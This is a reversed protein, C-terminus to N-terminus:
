SLSKPRLNSGIDFGFCRTKTTEVDPIQARMTSSKVLPNHHSLAYDLGHSM